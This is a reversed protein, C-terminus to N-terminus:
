QCVFRCAISIIIGECNGIILLEHELGRYKESSCPEVCNYFSHILKDNPSICTIQEVETQSDSAVLRM